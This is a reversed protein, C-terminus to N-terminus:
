RLEGVLRRTKEIRSERIGSATIITEELKMSQIGKGIIYAWGVGYKNKSDVYEQPVYASIQVKM